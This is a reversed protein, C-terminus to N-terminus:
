QVKIYFLLTITVQRNYLYMDFKMSLATNRDIGKLLGGIHCVIVNLQCSAYDCNNEYQGVPAVISFLMYLQMPLLWILSLIDVRETM